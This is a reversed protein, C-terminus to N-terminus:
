RWRRRDSGVRRLQRGVSLASALLGITGGLAYSGVVGWWPHGAIVASLAAALGAVFAPPFHALIM